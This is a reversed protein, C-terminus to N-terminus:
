LFANSNLSKGPCMLPGGSDASCSDKGEEGACLMSEAVFDEAYSPKCDADSVFPVSVKFSLM